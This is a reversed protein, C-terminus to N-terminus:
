RGGTRAPQRSADAASMHRAVADVIVPWDSRHLEHGAGELPLLRAGPIAAALAEGKSFPLVPDHTGHIVLTPHRIDGLRSGWGPCDAVAAHNFPTRSDATIDFDAEAMRRIAAADFSRCPGSLLRWLEVQYAVVAERDSWDLVASRGYHELIAPDIAPPAQEDGSSLPESAVLTLSRVRAPTKLAILQALYGGLSMGMCHASELGYADLVRVADNAMDEVNYNVQGPVGTTSRGTDRHDFRIVHYDRDALAQCFEQPWWVACATAGMILLLGPRGPDGFSETHLSIGSVHISRSNV